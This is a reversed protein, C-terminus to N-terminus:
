AEKVRCMKLMDEIEKICADNCYGTAFEYVLKKDISDYDAEIVYSLLRLERYKFVTLSSKVMSSIDKSLVGIRFVCFSCCDCCYTDAEFKGYTDCGFYKLAENVTKMCKLIKELQRVNSM